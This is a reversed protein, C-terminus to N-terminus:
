NGSFTFIKCDSSFGFKTHWYPSICGVLSDSPVPEGLKEKLGPAIENLIIEDWKFSKINLINMGSGDSYDISAYTGALTSALFSSIM